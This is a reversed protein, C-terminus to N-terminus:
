VLTPLDQRWSGEPQIRQAGTKEWRYEERQGAVDRGAKVKRASPNFAHSEWTSPNFTYVVM